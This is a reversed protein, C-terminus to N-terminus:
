CNCKKRVDMDEWLLGSEGEFMFWYSDDFTVGHSIKIIEYPNYETLGHQELLWQCDPRNREFCRMELFTFMQSHNPKFRLPLKMPDSTLPTTEVVRNEINWVVKMVPEDKYMITFNYNKM